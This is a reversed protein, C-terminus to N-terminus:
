STMNCSCKSFSSSIRTEKAPKFCTYSNSLKVKKYGETSNIREMKEGKKNKRYVATKDQQLQKVLVLM